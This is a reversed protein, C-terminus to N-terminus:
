CSRYTSAPRTPLPFGRSNDSGYIGGVTLLYDGPPLKDTQFRGAQDTFYCFDPQSETKSQLPANVMIGEVPRGRADLVRGTVRVGDAIRLIGLDARDLPVPQYNRAANLTRFELNLAVRAAVKTRFRGEHDTKIPNDADRTQSHSQRGNQMEYYQKYVPTDALPRSKADVAQGFIEKAPELKMLRFDASEDTVGDRAIQRPSGFGFSTAYDAHSATVFMDIERKSDLDDLYKQPVVVTFRGQSDATTTGTEMERFSSRGTEDKLQRVLINVAAGPVPKETVADVARCEIAKGPTQGLVIPTFAVPEAPPKVPFTPSSQKGQSNQETAASPKSMKKLRVELEKVAGEPLKLTESKPEYGEAEVTLTFKEDPLLQESRWRGDVQHEFNVYGFRRGDRLFQGGAAADTSGTSSARHSNASVVGDEGVAKVLLIPAVYRIVAVETM